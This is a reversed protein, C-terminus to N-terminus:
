GSIIELEKLFGNSVRTIFLRKKEFGAFGSNGEVTM